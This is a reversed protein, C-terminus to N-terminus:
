VRVRQEAITEIRNLQGYYYQLMRIRELVEVLRTGQEFGLAKCVDDLLCPEMM